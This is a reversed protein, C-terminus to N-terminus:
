HFLSRDNFSTNRYNHYIKRYLDPYSYQMESFDVPTWALIIGALGVFLHWLSHYLDYHDSEGGSTTNQGGVIYLVMGTVGFALPWIVRWNWPAYHMANIALMLLAVLIAMNAWMVDMDSYDKENSTHYLTSFLASMLFVIAVIISQRLFAILGPVFFFASSAVVWPNASSSSPSPSTVADAVSAKTASSGGTCM